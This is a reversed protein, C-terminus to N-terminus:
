KLCWSLIGKQAHLRNEAEDFVVSQLSDFVESTVEEERHAPLCHMFLADSAALNMIDANVQFPKLLKHRRMLDEDGMSVWTDTTVVNAGEAAAYINNSVVIDAGADLAKQIFQSKPKLQDPCAIHLTFKLKIAAEIWSHCVNNGDGVWAVKKGTIDGRKEQFTMIDAMIQCPHTLDTLGNIIPIDSHEALECVDDHSFTRIMVGDVYRSLVRATDAISEGRGLQMEAGTLMITDGGLQRMGVEFSIRTRTSPKTFILGIIKGKLPADVDPVIKGGALRNDKRTKADQLISKLTDSDHDFIDVFHRTM